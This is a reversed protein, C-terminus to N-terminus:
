KFKVDGILKDLNPVVLDDVRRGRVPIGGYESIIKKNGLANRPYESYETVYLPKGYKKCSRAAEFIGGEDPSEVIFVAKSMACIISNREMATYKDPEREPYFHSVILMENPDYFMKLSEPISFRFIGSPIVAVTKGGYELASRHSTIGVGKALGSITVISHTFFEKAAMHAIFEGRSSVESDGLVAAGKMKLIDRNGYAYLIPPASNGMSEALEPPYYESFFTIVDIGADILRNYDNEVKEMNERASQFAALTKERFSFEKKIEESTLDFIDYLSIGTERLIGHIERLNVAGIGNVQNLAIWYKTSDM